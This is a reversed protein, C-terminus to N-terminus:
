HLGMIEDYLERTGEGAKQAQYKAAYARIRDPHQKAWRERVAKEAEKHTLYYRRRYARTQEPHTKRRQRNYENVQERHARQWNLHAQQAKRKGEENM